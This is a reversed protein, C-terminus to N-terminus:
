GTVDDDDNGGGGSRDGSSGGSIDIRARPQRRQRRRPVARATHTSHKSRCEVLLHAGMSGVRYADGASMSFVSLSFARAPSTESMELLLVARRLGCARAARM